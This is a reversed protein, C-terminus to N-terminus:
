NRVPLALEVRWFQDLRTYALCAIFIASWFIAPIPWAKALVVLIPLDANLPKFVFLALGVGSAACVMLSIMIASVCCAKAQQNEGSVIGRIKLM